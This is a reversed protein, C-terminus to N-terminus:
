CAWSRPPRSHPRVRGPRTVDQNRPTAAPLPGTHRVRETDVLRNGLGDLPYGVLLDLPGDRSELLRATAAELGRHMVAPLSGLLEAPQDPEDARRQTLGIARRVLREAVSPALQRTEAIRLGRKGGEIGQDRGRRVAQRLTSDAGHASAEGREGLLGRLSTVHPEPSIARRVQKPRAAPVDGALEIGSPPRGDPGADLHGIPGAAARHRVGAAVSLRGHHV